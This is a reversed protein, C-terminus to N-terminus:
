LAADNGLKQEALAPLKELVKVEVTPITSDDHVDDSGLM